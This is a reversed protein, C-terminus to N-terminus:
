PGFATPGFFCISRYFVVCCGVCVSKVGFFMVQVVVDHRYREQKLQERCIVVTGALPRGQTDTQCHAAYALLSPQCHLTFFLIMLM